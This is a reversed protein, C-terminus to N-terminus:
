EIVEDARALMQEHASLPQQTLGADGNNVGRHECFWACRTGGCPPLRRPERTASIADTWVIARGFRILTPDQISRRAQALTRKHRESRTTATRRRTASRRERFSSLRTSAPRLYRKGSAACTRPTN